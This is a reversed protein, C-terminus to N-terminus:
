EDSIAFTVTEVSQIGVRPPEVVQLELERLHTEIALKKEGLTQQQSILQEKKSAKWDFTSALESEHCDVSPTFLTKPELKSKAVSPKM